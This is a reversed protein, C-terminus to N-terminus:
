LLDKEGFVEDFRRLADAEQDLRENLYTNILENVSTRKIASVKKLKDAISPLILVNLRKSKVERGEIKPRGNKKVSSVTEPLLNERIITKDSSDEGATKKVGSIFRATQNEINGIDFKKSM